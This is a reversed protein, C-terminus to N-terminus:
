ASGNASRVVPGISSVQYQMAYQGSLFVANGTVNVCTFASRGVNGGILKDGMRGGWGVSAGEPRAAAQWNSPQDNHSCLKPQWAEQRHRVAQVAPESASLKEPTGSRRAL